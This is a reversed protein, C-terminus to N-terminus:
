KGMALLQKDTEKIKFWKVLGNYAYYADGSIPNGVVAIRQKSFINQGRYGYAHPTEYREIGNSWDVYGFVRNLM